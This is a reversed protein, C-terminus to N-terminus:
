GRPASIAASCPTGNKEFGMSRSASRPATSRARTPPSTARGAYREARRTPLGEWRWAMMGGVLTHVRDFGLDWLLDGALAARGFSRCVVVLEVDRRWGSAVRALEALPVHIAQEIRGLPGDLEPADRVDILHVAPLKAFVESPSLAAM